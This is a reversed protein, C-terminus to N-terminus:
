QQALRKIKRRLQLFFIRIQNALSPYQSIAQREIKALPSLLLNANM